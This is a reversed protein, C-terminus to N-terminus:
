IDTEESDTVDDTTLSIGFANAVGVMKDGLDRMQNKANVINQRNSSGEKIQYDFHETDAASDIAAVKTDITSILTDIESKQATSLLSYFSTGQSTVKYTGKLVNVFGGYNTAVDRHTNDSFCSHEDEESPTLVAVAMRENALESKIFIGMGVFIDKLADDAPINKGADTGSLTGLLAGRYCGVGTTCNTDESQWADSVAQLDDVLLEAAASLYDKRRDANAGSTFDTYEREGAKTTGNTVTDAVFSAYDQDQGWLLFEIAHFGTAVNADGGNENLAALTEKTITTANVEEGDTPTFMGATDIINGSTTNGDADTTYDIMNEDLPWANMQGEPAGYMTSVWGAEADVPGNSLRFIETTGYSERANLWATKAANFNAENPATTFSGIATQLVEADALADEYNKEAITAYTTLVASKQAQTIATTGADGGGSGDGCGTTAVALLTALVISGIIIKKRKM